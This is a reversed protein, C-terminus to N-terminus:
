AHATGFIGWKQSFLSMQGLYRGDFNFDQKKPVEKERRFKKFDERSVIRLINADRNLFFSNAHFGANDEMGKRDKSDYQAAPERGIIDWKQTWIYTGM